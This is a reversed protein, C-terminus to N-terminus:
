KKNKLLALTEIEFEYDLNLIFLLEITENRIFMTLTKIELGDIYCRYLWYNCSVNDTKSYLIKDRDKWWFVNKFTQIFM